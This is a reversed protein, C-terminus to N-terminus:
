EHIKALLGYHDSIDRGPSSELRVVLVEECRPRWTSGPYSLFYDLRQGRHHRGAAPNGDLGQVPRAFSSQRDTTLGSNSKFPVLRGDVDQLGGSGAGLWLDAPQGLRALMDAHLSAYVGDTNLDGMLLAPYRPDRQADIFNQLHDLQVQVKHRGNKGPGVNPSTFVPNPNQLHTLFLDLANEGAVKVQAHIAGKDALCDEGLCHPYLTSGQESIPHRSLLLLGGDLKTEGTRGPGELWHSYLGELQHALAQREAPLWMESLGVIDPRRDVLFAVLRVLAKEREQGRYLDEGNPLSLPPLLAMNQQFATFTEM